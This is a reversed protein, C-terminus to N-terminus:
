VWEFHGGRLLCVSLGAVRSALVGGVCLGRGCLWGAGDGVQAAVAVVFDRKATAIRDATVVAAIADQVLLPGLPSYLRAVAFPKRFPFFRSPNM